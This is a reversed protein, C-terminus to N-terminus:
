TSWRLGMAAATLPGVAADPHLGHARQYRRVAAATVKGYAEDQDVEVVRQVERVDVGRMMPDTVRLIRWLVAPGADLLAAAAVPIVVRRLQGARTPNPCSHRNPNWERFQSHYGIGREGFGKVLRAPAGTQQCWWVTLDVLAALQRDSWPLDPNGGDATEVSTAYANGAAQADAQRDLSQWQWVAGHFTGDAPGGVGFHSETGEYGARRFMSDTGLLNGVMTHFVLLRPTGIVPETQRGLGRWAAAPYRTQM